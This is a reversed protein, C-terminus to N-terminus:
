NKGKVATIDMLVSVIKDPSLEYLAAGLEKAAGPMGFVTSSERDQIITVAGREKLLKLEAAGDRGMGTLLVAAAKNGYAEAITRFLFSVSPRASREPERGSLFIRGKNSIGMHSGDPAFYAHGPIATIGDAAIHLPVGSTESLWQLMGQLFGAAMHQVILVPLPFDKPLGSLIKQLVPPGGASAGIAIVNIEPHIGRPVPHDADIDKVISASRSWRRVVKVESMLRITRLMEKIAAEHEPHGAGPPRRVIALAGAEMARFTTDVEKPDWNGSVIVIPVPRTEMIKRTADLGNMKPMIIDMTIIDPRTRTVFEVAEEGDNARGVVEIDPESGLVHVLFEQVVPSDEVVLVKIM